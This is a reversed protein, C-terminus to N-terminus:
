PSPLFWTSPYKHSLFLLHIFAKIQIQLSLTPCESTQLFCMRKGTVPSFLLLHSQPPNGCSSVQRQPLWQVTCAKTWANWDIKVHELSSLGRCGSYGTIDSISARPAWSVTKSSAQHARDPHCLPPPVIGEWIFTSSPMLTPQASWLTRRSMRGETVWELNKHTKVPQQWATPLSLPVRTWCTCSWIQTHLWSFM